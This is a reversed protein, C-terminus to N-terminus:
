WMSAASILKERYFCLAAAEIIKLRRKVRILALKQNEFMQLELM